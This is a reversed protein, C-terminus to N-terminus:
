EIFAINTMSNFVFFDPMEGEFDDKDNLWLQRMGSFLEKDLTHTANPNHFISVSEKWEEIIEGAKVICDFPKGTSKPNSDNAIGSRAIIIEDKVNGKQFGMRNFKHLDCNNTFIVASINEVNNQNFFNSPIKKSKHQHEEV